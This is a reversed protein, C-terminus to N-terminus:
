QIFLKQTFVNTNNRVEVIINGQYDPIQINANGGTVKQSLLTQGLVNYINVVADMKNSSVLYVTNENSYVHIDSSTQNSIGNPSAFHILFRESADSPQAYFTYAKDSLNIIEGTQLDELYIDGDFQTNEMSITYFDQVGVELNTQITMGETFPLINTSLNINEQVMYLQPAAMIGKLKYADYENDFSSTANDNLSIVMEDSYDNGKVFISIQKVDEKYFGITSHKRESAPITIAPNAANTRIWFGQGVPIDQNTLSGTGTTNMNKYQTGDYIYMTADINTLTWNNNWEVASTFPNGVMNWGQGGAHPHPDTFSVEPSVDAVNIVGVHNATYNSGASWTFFGDGLNMPTSEDSIYAWTSDAETYDQLYIGMFVGATDNAVPATVMHWQDQSIFTEVTMYTADYSLLSGQGSANSQLIIGNAGNANSLQGNVTLQGAPAITLTANNEVKLDEAVAGAADIVPFTAPASVEPIVANITATPIGNSWNAATFWDSDTAGNWDTFSPVNVAGPTPTAQDYTSTYTQGGSGNPLRQNSYPASSGRGAENIQPEGAQLLSLLGADDNDNTDYVLADVLDSTTLATGNPFSSADGVYLAVADAGNQLINNGTVYDVNAVNSSGLVFYGDGDLSYGDLDWAQYSIDGNGNYAVLVYGNLSLNAPGYLEIFEETDSGSQDADVENIVLTAPPDVVTIYNTKTETNDDANDDMVYLEVTYTGANNYTYSPNQIDDDETGDGDLDWSYLYPAVGGSTADTFNVTGGIMITTVDASFEADLPQIGQTISINDVDWRRYNDEYYYKFAIYVSTGSISSLDISGSTTWTDSGGVAFSLETWTASSPDGLGAYNSSYYLKFYHTADDNAGYKWKTDFTMAENSYNDFNIAPLILWDEETEGSNYGNMEAYDGSHYAWAKTSGAVSYTYCDGLDGTFNETYDLTTSAPDNVTYNYESSTNDDSDDDIAYVEYYVTTGDAQAPIDSDTEYTDGGTNSMSITNGLSGSATGWHLEVGAVTGDSDTVDASVSVSTSSTIDTSPDNSVNSIVPPNNGSASTGEVKINDFAIEESGGEFRFVAKVDLTSGTGSINYSFNQITKNLETEGAEGGIGNLNTDDFLHHNSGSPSCFSGITFFAGGDISIQLDFYDGNSLSREDYKNSLNASADLSISLSSYGSIDIQDLTLTVIGDAPDGGDGNKTDEAGIFYNSGDEMAYGSLGNFNQARKCYDHGGDDFTYDLSWGSTSNFEELRITTQGFTFAISFLMMATLITIKKM